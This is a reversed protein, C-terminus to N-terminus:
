FRISLKLLKLVLVNTIIKLGAPNSSLHWSQLAFSRVASGCCRGRVLTQNNMREPACVRMFKVEWSLFSTSKSHRFRGQRCRAGVLQGIPRCLCVPGVSLAPADHVEDRVFKVLNKLKFRVIIYSYKKNLHALGSRKQKNKTRKM